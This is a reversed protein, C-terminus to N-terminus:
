QNKEFSIPQNTDFKRLEYSINEGLDIYAKRGDIRLYVAKQLTDKDLCSWHGLGLGAIREDEYKEIGVPWYKYKM